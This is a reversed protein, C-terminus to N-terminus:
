LPGALEVVMQALAKTLLVMLEPSMRQREVDQPADLDDALRPELHTSIVLAPARSAAVLSAGAHPATIEEETKPMLGVRKLPQTLRLPFQPSRKAGELYVYGTRPWSDPVGVGDLEVWATVSGHLQDLLAHAGAADHYGGALFAVVVPARHPMRSLAAATELAVAVGSANDNLNLARLYSDQLSGRAGDWHAALVVPWRRPDSGPIDILLNTWEQEIDNPARRIFNQDRARLDRRSAEQRLVELVARAEPAWAYRTQVQPGNADTPAEGSLRDLTTSLRARAAAGGDPLAKKLLGGLLERSLDQPARPVWALGWRLLLTRRDFGATDPPAAMVAVVVQDAPRLHPIEVHAVGAASFTLPLEQDPGRRRLMVARGVWRGSGDGQLTLPFSREGDGEILIFAMGGVGVEVAGSAPHSAVVRAVPQPRPPAVQAFVFRGDGITPDDLWCAMAFDALMGDLTVGEKASALLRAVGALGKEPRSVLDRLGGDGLKDRLYELFLLAWGREGWPDAPSHPRGEPDFDGWLLRAPAIGCLYPTYNALLVSWATEGPDRAWHLLQHFSEALAQVNWGAHNGQEDFTHYLVEGENSHFGYRLADKEAMEDFPFFLGPRRDLRTLLLIVRGNEDRDPCPGFLEVERPYITEDFVRVADSIQRSEDEDGAASFHYGEEQYVVLREGVRVLRATVQRQGPQLQPGEVVTWFSRVEPFLAAAAAVLPLALGAM